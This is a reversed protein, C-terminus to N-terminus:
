RSEPTPLPAPIFHRWREAVEAERLLALVVEPTCAGALSCWDDFLAAEAPSITRDARMRFDLRVDDPHAAVKEALVRLRDRTKPTLPTDSV